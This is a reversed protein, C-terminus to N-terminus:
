LVEDQNIYPDQPNQMPVGLTQGWRPDTASPMNTVPHQKADQLMGPTALGKGYNISKGHSKGGKSIKAM